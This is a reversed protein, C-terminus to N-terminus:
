YDDSEESSSHIMSDDRYCRSLLRLEELAERYDAMEPGQSLFSPAVRCIDLTSAGRHMEALWSGLSTSSDVHLLSARYSALPSSPYFTRIYYELVDEGRNLSHLPTPPRTGPALSSLPFM